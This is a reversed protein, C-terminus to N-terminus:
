RRSSLSSKIDVIKWLALSKDRQAGGDAKSNECMIGVPEPLLFPAVTLNLARWQGTAIDENHKREPFTTTLLYKSDSDCINRLASLVDRSSMHVLCDRCLVLDVKPLKDSIVDVVKFRVNDKQYKAQNHQILDPVIDAGTYEIARLDVNKMWNFDGCPIDFVTKVQLDTLITPLGDSIARVEHLESGPGSVSHRGGWKNGAHIDAFVRETSKLRLTMGEITHRLVLYKHYAFQLGPVKKGIDRLKRSDFRSNM